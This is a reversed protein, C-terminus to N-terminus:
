ELPLENVWEQVFISAKMYIKHAYKRFIFSSRKPKELYQVMRDMCNELEEVYYGSYHAMTSDWDYAGLMRRALCMASAAIMSPPYQMLHYDLLPLELLYKAITRSHLNYNDAKSVRRLFNMPNPFAVSFGLTQLVYREADRIEQASYGGDSMYVYNQISPAMVEEYKAAIFLATIGVLQYKVLSVERLSMFRDMINVALFLTEPLMRFKHHVEALWDLLVGRMKWALEPQSDMYTPEPMTEIQLRLFYEFIDRSYEAVMMTDEMEGLELDEFDMQQHGKPRMADMEREYMQAEDLYATYPDLWAKPADEISPQRRSSPKATKSDSEKKLKPVHKIDLRAEERDEQKVLRLDDQTIELKVETREDKVRIPAENENDLKFRSAVEEEKVRGLPEQKNQDLQARPREGLPARGSPGARTQEPPSTSRNQLPQRSNSGGVNHSSSSSDNTKESLVRKKSSPLTNGSSLAVKAKPAQTQQTQQTQTQTTLASTVDKVYQVTPAPGAARCANENSVRRKTSQTTSRPWSQTQNSM